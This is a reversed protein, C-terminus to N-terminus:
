RAPPTEQQDRLIQLAKAVRDGLGTVGKRSSREFEEIRDVADARQKQNVAHWAAKAALAFRAGPLALLYSVIIPLLSLFVLPAFNLYLNSWGFSAGNTEPLYGSGEALVTASSSYAFYGGDQDLTVFGNRAALIWAVGLCVFVLLAVVTPVLRIFNGKWLYTHATRLRVASVAQLGTPPVVRFSAALDDLEARLWAMQARDRFGLHIRRRRGDIEELQSRFLSVQAATLRQGSDGTLNARLQGYSFHEGRTMAVVIAVGVLLVVAVLVVVIIASVPGYRVYTAAFEVGVALLIVTLVGLPITWVYESYRRRAPRGPKDSEHAGRVDLLSAALDSLQLVLLVLWLAAGAAAILLFVDVPTNV